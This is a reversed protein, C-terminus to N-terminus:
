LKTKFSNLLNKLIRLAQKRSYFIPHKNLKCYKYRELVKKLGYRKINWLHMFMAGHHEHLGKSKLFENYRVMAEFRCDLVIEDTQKILSNLTDTIVYITENCVSINKSYIAVQLSFLIDNSAPIEEFKLNNKLILKTKILKSWPEYFKFFIEKKKNRIYDDILLCSAWHRNAIEGTKPYISTPPFYVVDNDNLLENEIIKFANKTFYDDADAFLIFDGNVHKLGENRAAGAGKRSKNLKHFRVTKYEKELTFIDFNSNDDVVIKEIWNKDPISNLLVQLSVKSNYHPIIISVKKM